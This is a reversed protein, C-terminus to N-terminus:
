RNEEGLVHPGHTLHRATVPLALPPLVSTSGVHENCCNPPRQVMDQAFLCKNHYLPKSASALRATCLCAHLNERVPAIPVIRTHISTHMRRYIFVYVDHIYRHVFVSYTSPRTKTSTRTQAHMCLHPQPIQHKHGQPCLGHGPSIVADPLSDNIACGHAILHRLVHTRHPAGDQVFESVTHPSAAHV